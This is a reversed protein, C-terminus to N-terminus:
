GHQLWLMWHGVPDNLLEEMTISKISSDYDVFRLEFGNSVIKNLFRQPTNYLSRHFEVFWRVTPHKAMLEIAGDMAAEESGEIDLKILDPPRRDKFFRDLSIVSAETNPPVSESTFQAPVLKTAGVNEPEHAMWMNTTNGNHLGVKYTEVTGSFGNIDVNRRLLDFTQHNPEFAHIHGGPGVLEAMLISYYGFCAGGDVCHWDRQVTRSLFITIWSEWCGDLILHPTMAVDRTDIYMKYNYLVRCLTTNNGVYNGGAAERSLQEMGVRDHFIM